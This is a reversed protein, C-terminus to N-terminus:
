RALHREKNCHSFNWEASLARNLCGELAAAGARGGSIFAFRTVIVSQM